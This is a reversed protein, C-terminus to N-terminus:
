EVFIPNSYVFVRDQDSFLLGTTEIGVEVRYVGSNTVKYALSYGKERHIERGDRYLVFFVGPVKLSLTAWLEMGQELKVRDGMMGMVGGGDARRALFRFASCDGYIPVACYFHGAYLADQVENAGYPGLGDKVLVFTLPGKYNDCSDIGCFGFVRAKRLYDDWHALAAKPRVGLFDLGAPSGLVSGAIKVIFEPAGVSESCQSSSLFEFGDPVMADWAKWRDPGGLARVIVSWGGAKRLRGFTDGAEAEDPMIKRKMGMTIFHGRRSIVDQSPITALPANSAADNLDDGGASSIVAFDMGSKFVDSLINGAVQDQGVTVNFVGRLTTWGDSVRAHTTFLPFRMLLVRAVVALSLVIILVLFLFIIKRGYRKPRRVIIEETLSPDSSAGPRM